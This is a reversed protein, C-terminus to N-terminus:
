AFYNIKWYWFACYIVFILLLRDALEMRMSSVEMLRVISQVCERREETDMLEMEVRIELFEMWEQSEMPEPSELLERTVELGMKELFEQLEVHDKDEVHVQLEKHDQSRQSRRSMKELHELPEQSGTRVRRGADGRKAPRGSPDKHDRRVSCGLDELIEKHDLQDQPDSPDKLVHSM